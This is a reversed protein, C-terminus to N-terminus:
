GGRTPQPLSPAAIYDRPLAGAFAGLFAVISSVEGDSLEVGLQHRGMARVAGALDSYSGDHFYPATLTVNKLTPVKFVMRDSPMGTIEFRGLDKRNPWPEVAGAVQFMSGGVQPGTHCAMCGVELFVRLGKIEAASLAFTNGDLFDDWRSRTNLGREFASLCKAVNALTIPEPAHPFAEKFLTVYGPIGRLTAEVQGRTSAMEVPNLIPGTAQAELDNARGDWFQALHSASNYVTPANRRGHQGGEGVSTSLHDVGYKNLDHCTNCAIQGSHSLRQEYWLMRGLAVMQPSSAPTVHPGAVAVPRFRRLLRPNVLERQPDGASLPPQDVDRPRTESRRPTLSKRACAGGLVSSAILAFHLVHSTRIIM